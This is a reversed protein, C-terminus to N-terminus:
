EADIEREWMEIAQSRTYIRPTRAKHQTALQRERYKVRPVLLPNAYCIGFTVNADMPDVGIHMADKMARAANRQMSLSKTKM